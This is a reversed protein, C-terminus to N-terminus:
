GHSPTGYSVASAWLFFTKGGIACSGGSHSAEDHIMELPNGTDYQTNEILIIPMLNNLKWAESVLLAAFAKTASVSLDYQTESGLGDVLWKGNSLTKHFKSLQGVKGFLLNKTYSYLTAQHVSITSQLTELLTSRELEESDQPRDSIDAHLKEIHKALEAMVYLVGSAIGDM